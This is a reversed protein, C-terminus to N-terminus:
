SIEENLMNLRVYRNEATDHMHRGQKSECHARLLTLLFDNQEKICDTDANKFKSLIAMQEEPDLQDMRFIKRSLM